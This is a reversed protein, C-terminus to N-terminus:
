LLGGAALSDDFGGRAENGADGRVVDLGGEGADARLGYPLVAGEDVVEDEVARAAAGKVHAVGRAGARGGRECDGAHDRVAQLGIELGARSGCGGPVIRRSDDLPLPVIVPSIVRRRRSRSAATVAAAALAAPLSVVLADAACGFFRTGGGCLPLRTATSPPPM